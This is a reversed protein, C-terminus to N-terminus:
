KIGGEVATERYNRIRETLRSIYENAARAYDGALKLRRNTLDALYNEAQVLQGPERIPSSVFSNIARIFENINRHEYEKVREKLLDIATDCRTRMEGALNPQYKELYRLRNNVAQYDQETDIQGTSTLMADDIMNKCETQWRPLGWPRAPQPYEPPQPIGPGGIEAPAPDAQMFDMSEPPSEELKKAAEQSQKATYDRRQERNWLM